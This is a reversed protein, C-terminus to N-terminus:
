TINPNDNKNFSLPCIVKVLSKKVRDLCQIVLGKCFFYSIILGESNSFCIVCELFWAILLFSQSHSFSLCHLRSFM